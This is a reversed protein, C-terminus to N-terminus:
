RSANAGAPFSASPRALLKYADVWTRYSGNDAKCWAVCAAWAAYTTAPGGVGSKDPLESRDAEVIPNALKPVQGAIRVLDNLVSRIHPGPFDLADSNDECEGLIMTLKGVIGDITSAPTAPMTDLLLQEAAAALQEDALAIEYNTPLGDTSRTGAVQDELVLELEQQRICLTQTRSHADIWKLVLDVAPDVPCLDARAIVESASPRVAEAEYDSRTVLPLTTSNDSDAM